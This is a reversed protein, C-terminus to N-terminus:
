KYFDDYYHGAVSPAYEGILDGQGLSSEEGKEYDNYM